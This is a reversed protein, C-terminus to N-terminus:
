PRRGRDHPRKGAPEKSKTPTRVAPQETTVPQRGLARYAEMARQLDTLAVVYDGSRAASQAAARLSDARAFLIPSRTQAGAVVAAARVGEVGARLGELAALSAGAPAAAGGTRPTAPAHEGPPRPVPPQETSSPPPEAAEKAADAGSSPREDKGDGTHLVGMYLGALIFLVFFAGAGVLLSRGELVRLPSDGRRPPLITSPCSTVAYLRWEGPVGKLSHVGRDEFTFGSGAELDRVTSSVLVEAPGAAAAVRAGIHVTIGGVNGAQRELQGAHIGARVELGLTRVVDRIACGCLIAQGPQDFVALFGDGATAIERGGHRALERRVLAHHEELLGRWARDGLEAAKETSGVIDTFLVTGLSRQPDMVQTRRGQAATNL